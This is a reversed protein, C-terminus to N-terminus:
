LGGKLLIERGIAFVIKFERNNMKQMLSGAIFSWRHIFVQNNEELPHDKFVSQVTTAFIYTTIIVKGLVKVQVGREMMCYM